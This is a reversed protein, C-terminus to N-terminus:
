WSASRGESSRRMAPTRSRTVGLDGSASSSAKVSYPPIGAGMVTMGAYAPIGFEGRGLLPSTAAFRRTLTSPVPTGPNQLTPPPCLNVLRHAHAVM